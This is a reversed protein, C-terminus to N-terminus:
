AARRGRSPQPDVTRPPTKGPRRPSAKKPRADARRVTSAATVVRNRGEQKAQYLAQDAQKVLIRRDTGHVTTSSAGVSCTIRASRGPGLEVVMLEVASRLKEAVQTAGELDAGRLAVVFEEGGYRAITDSERLTGLVTRAFARLADDGARHGHRDYFDKFHDIDVMLLGLPEGTRAVDALEREIFPDFFRANHLGTLPDTMALGEMTRAMRVNSLALAVQEAVRAAQRQDDENFAGIEGRGLHIVGVVQGLALMPVCLVSGSQSPHAACALQLVDSADNLAHVAGRRIGPCRLPGDVPVVSGAEAPHWGWAVAVILRDQSANALLIDGHRTPVLQGLAATAARVLDREEASFTILEALHNFVDVVARYRAQSERQAQLASQAEERVRREQELIEVERALVRERERLLVAQRVFVLLVLLSTGIHLLQVGGPSLVDDAWLLMAMVLAVAFLPLASAIGRNLRIGVPNAIARTSWTAAGWGAVLTGVSFVVDVLSGPRPVAVISEAIWQLWGLALIAFGLAAVYTGRPEPVTRAALAGLLGLLAVSFFAIPYVLVGTATLPQATLLPEAYYAVMLTGVATTIAAADFFTASEDGTELRGHIAAVFAFGAPLASAVFLVDSPAPLVALGIMSQIAWSLHALLYLAFSVAFARRVLRERGVTRRAGREAWLAAIAAAIMWHLNRWLLAQGAADVAALVMAGAVLGLGVLLAARRPMGPMAFRLPMRRAPAVPQETATM